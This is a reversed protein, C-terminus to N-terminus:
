KKRWPENLEESFLEQGSELIQDLHSELLRRYEVVKEQLLEVKGERAHSMSLRHFVGPEVEWGQERFLSLLHIRCRRGDAVYYGNPLAGNDLRVVLLFVDFERWDIEVEIALETSFFDITTGSSARDVVLQSFAHQQQLFAFEQVVYSELKRQDSV